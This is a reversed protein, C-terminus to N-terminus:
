VVFSTKLVKSNSMLAVKSFFICFNTHFINNSCKSSRLQKQENISSGNVMCLPTIETRINQYDKEVHQISDSKGGCCGLEGVPILVNKDSRMNHKSIQNLVLCQVSSSIRLRPQM